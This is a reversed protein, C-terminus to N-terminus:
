FGIRQDKSSKLALRTRKFYGLKETLSTKDNVLYDFMEFDVVQKKYVDKYLLDIFDCEEKIEIPYKDDNFKFHKLRDNLCNYIDLYKNKDKKNLKSLFLFANLDFSYASVKFLYNATNFDNDLYNLYPKLSIAKINGKRCEKDLYSKFSNIEFSKVKNERLELEEAYENSIIFIDNDLVINKNTLLLYESYRNISFLNMLLGEAEEYEKNNLKLVSNLTKSVEKLLAELEENILYGILLKTVGIFEKTFNIIKKNVKM